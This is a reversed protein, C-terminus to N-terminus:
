QYHVRRELFVFQGIAAAALIVLLVMTLASAYALDWFKFGVEYIYFLLL